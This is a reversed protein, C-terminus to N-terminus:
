YEGVEIPGEGAIGELRRAYAALWAARQADSARVPAYHVQPALVDFGVFQLIGRQIPRLIADM